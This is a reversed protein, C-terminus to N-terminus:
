IRGNKLLNLGLRKNLRVLAEIQYIESLGAREVMGELREKLRLIEVLYSICLDFSINFHHYDLVGM